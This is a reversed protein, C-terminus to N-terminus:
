NLSARRLAVAAVEEETLPRGLRFRERSLMQALRPDLLFGHPCKGIVVTGPRRIVQPPVDSADREKM